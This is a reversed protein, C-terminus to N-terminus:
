PVVLGLIFGLLFISTDFLYKKIRARKEDEYQSVDNAAQESLCWFTAQLSGNIEEFEVPEIRKRVYLKNEKSDLGIRQAPTKFVKLQKYERSSIM